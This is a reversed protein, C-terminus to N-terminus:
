WLRVIKGFIAHSTNISLEQDGRLLPCFYNLIFKLIGGKPGVWVGFSWIKLKKKFLHFKIGSRFLIGCTGLSFSVPLTKLNEFTLLRILRCIIRAVRYSSPNVLAVWILVM